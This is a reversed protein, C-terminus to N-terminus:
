QIASVGDSNAGLAEILAPVDAAKITLVYEYGTLGQGFFVEIMKGLDQGEIRVDGSAAM